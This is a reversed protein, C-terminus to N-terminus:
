RDPREDEKESKSTKTDYAVAGKIIAIGRLFV